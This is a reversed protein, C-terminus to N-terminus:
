RLVWQARRRRRGLAHRRAVRPDPQPRRGRDARRRGAGHGPTGPRRSRAHRGHRGHRRRHGRGCARGDARHRGGPPRAAHAPVAAPRDRGAPVDDDVVGEVPRRGALGGRRLFGFLLSAPVHHARQHDAAGDGAGAPGRHGTRHPLPRHPAQRQRRGGVPHGGTPPCLAHGRRLGAPVGGGPRGVPAVAAEPLGGRDSGGDDGDATSRRADGGRAAVGRARRVRAPPPRRPADSRM